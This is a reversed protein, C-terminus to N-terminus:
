FYIQLMLSSVFTGLGISWSSGHGESVGGTTGSYRSYGGSVDVGTQGALSVRRLPFWEVGAAVSAGANGSWSHSEDSAGGAQSPELTQRQYGIGLSLGSQVYPAVPARRALYRRVQPGVSAALHLSNGSQETGGPPTSASHNYGASFNVFFGRARDPAVMRWIGLGAGGGNPLNFSLARRGPTLAEISDPTQAAASGALALVGAFAVLTTLHRM